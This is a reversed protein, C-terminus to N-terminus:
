KYKARESEKGSYMVGLKITLEKPGKEQSHLMTTDMETVISEKEEGEFVEGDQSLAEDM